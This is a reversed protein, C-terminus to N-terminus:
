VGEKENVNLIELEKIELKINYLDTDLEYAYTEVIEAIINYFDKIDKQVKVDYKQKFYRNGILPISLLSVDFNMYISTKPGYKKGDIIIYQTTKNNCVSKDLQIDAFTQAAIYRVIEDIRHNNINVKGFEHEYCISMRTDGDFIM